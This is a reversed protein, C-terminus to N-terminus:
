YIVVRLSTSLVHDYIIAQSVTDKMDLVVSLLPPYILIIYIHLLGTRIADVIKESNMLFHSHIFVGADELTLGEDSLYTNNECPHQTYGAQCDQVCLCGLLKCQIHRLLLCLLIDFLSRSRLMRQEIKGERIVSSLNYLMM